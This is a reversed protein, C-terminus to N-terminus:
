GEIVGGKFIPCIDEGVCTDLNPNFPMLKCVTRPESYYYITGKEKMMEQQTEPSAAMDVIETHGIVKFPCDKM